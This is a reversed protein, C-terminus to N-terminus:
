QFTLSSNCTIPSARRVYESTAIGGQYTRNRFGEYDQVTQIEVCLVFMQNPM